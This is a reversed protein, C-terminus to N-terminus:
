REDIARRLASDNVVGGTPDGCGSLLVGLAVAVAM